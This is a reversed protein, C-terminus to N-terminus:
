EGGICRREHNIVVYLLIPASLACVDGPIGPARIGLRLSPGIHRIFLTEM